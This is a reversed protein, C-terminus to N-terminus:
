LFNIRFIWQFSQHQLQFELVKAVQHSSSVWQFLGQHQSLNFAPPSHSSLPHSPQIADSVQHVHIQPLELLHSLVAFGPMSCDMTDWLHLSNSEVSCSPLLYHRVNYDTWLLFRTFTQLVPFLLYFLVLQCIKMTFLLFFFVVIFYFMLDNRLGLRYDTKLPINAKPCGDKGANDWKGFSM